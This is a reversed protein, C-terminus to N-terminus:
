EEDMLDRFEYFSDVERDVKSNLYAKILLVLKKVLIILTQAAVLSIWFNRRLM